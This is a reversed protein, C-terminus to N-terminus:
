AHPRMWSVLSDLTTTFGAANKHGGGGYRKAIHSVDYDGNSRLSCLVQGRKDLTWTLGFTGSQNALEHGVDSSFMPSCNAMRGYIGDFCDTIVCDMTAKEVISKFHLDHQKLLVEGLKQLDDVSNFFGIWDHWQEFTWPAHSWIGKNIAKTGELKFQWRDYDDVYAFLEPIHANPRFYEWALIAGSKNPDLIFEVPPKGPLFESIEVRENPDLGLDEFVTKHHDLMVLKECVARIIDLKWKPFSFDLVYVERRECVRIDFNDRQEGYQRPMYEATDGLKTWAAYAAAFGDVCNAHYIVLPKNM